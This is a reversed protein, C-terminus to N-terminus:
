GKIERWTNQVVAATGFSRTGDFPMPDYIINGDGGSSGALVGGPGDITVGGRIVATGGLSVVHGNTNQQNLGYVIGYFVLNGNMSFTGNKIIVLGPAAATNCCAGPVSNNYSCNGSDIVVVTGTPNAPCTAYHTGNADALEELGALDDATIAPRTPYSYVLNEPTVQQKETEYDLCGPSDPPVNCRVALGLSGTTNIITKRGSNTTAFHGATLAYRPFEVPRAEVAILAVITRKQGRVVGQAKVWIRNDKNADYTYASLNGPDYFDGTDNDRVSTTWSTQGGAYDVQLAGDFHDDIRNPDPCLIDDVQLPCQAPYARAVSGPGLRGILFTQANLAGEALNFSSERIRDTSSLRTQTGVASYTAMGLILMLTLAVVAVVV